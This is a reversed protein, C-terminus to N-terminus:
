NVTVFGKEAAIKQGTQSFLFDIFQKTLGTPEGRTNSFLGRAVKYRGNKVTELTPTVGDLAVPMVSNDIHGVSVYGIGYPDNAVASKMAGNSVVVNARATIDGKDIAKKWFVARTGSAEDRTYITIAKDTGGVAKWNDMRGAFIAKVQARSLAKVPNKPNVVVGVGDIAWKFMKLDYKAIEKDTPKRGSNGINVLGEGVQKIGVGSGGGAVTIRVNPYHQMIQKAAEKMVPIHATGGSIKVTGADGAFPDLDGALVPFSCALLLALTSIAMILYFRRGIRLM